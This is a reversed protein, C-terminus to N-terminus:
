VTDSDSESDSDLFRKTNFYKPNEILKKIYRELHDIYNRKRYELKFFGVNKDSMQEKVTELYDIVTLEDFYYDPLLDNLFEDTLKNLEKMASRTVTCGNSVYGLLFQKFVERVSM